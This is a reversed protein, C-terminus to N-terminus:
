PQLLELIREFVTDRGACYARCPEVRVDPAIGVGEIRGVGEYSGTGATAVYLFYRGDFMRNMQGALFAGATRSGVLTGLGDRRIIGAVAEKGSRVSDDVLFFRPISMLYSSARLGELYDEGIGGYGGRLDIVLVDVRSSEFGALAENRAELIRDRAAWVHFMGIQTGGVDRVHASARSADVFAAVVSQRRAQVNLELREAGNRSLTLVAPGEGFGLPTYPAGDIGVLEDGALVGAEAAASGELVYRAFWKGDRQEPWIGAFNVAYAVLDEFHFLSNLGWYHLDSPTYLATHSAGLRGLLGNVGGAVDDPGDDCRIRTRVAAVERDWDLGNFTRDVFQETVTGMIADYEAVPGCDEAAAGAAGALAPLVAVLAGIRRMGATESVGVLPRYHPYAPRSFVASLMGTEGPPAVIGRGARSRCLTTPTGAGSGRGRSFDLGQRVPDRSPASTARRSILRFIAPQCLM